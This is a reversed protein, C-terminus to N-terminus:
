EPELVALVEVHHTSPFLDLLELQRLRFGRQVLFATDRSWTAPDCSLMLLCQPRWGAITRRLSASLGSRPPDLLVVAEEPLRHHRALYAEATRGAVRAHPLNAAAARAAPRYSEVMTLQRQRQHCAAAGLLGVGAHLDWVPGPATTLRAVREFLGPVLFRNVQFFAGVPVTLPQPVAMTVTSAGWGAPRRGTGALLHCGDLLRDLAAAPPLWGAELRRPGNRSPRLAVVAHDGELDELWELDVAVPCHRHLAEALGPLAEQLRPSIIRCGDIAVVQWSRRQYFGLCGTEPHWHLRARLRYAPPSPTVPAAALAKALEAHGRAAGAAVAAKLAAGPAPEVHPWDCGGCDPAHCCPDNSRAPHADALVQHVQAEVVGARRRVAVADVLEGPLAGQVLWTADDHHALALGGGVLREARLEPM